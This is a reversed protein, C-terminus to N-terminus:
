NEDIGLAKFQKYEEKLNIYEQSQQLSKIVINKIANIELIFGKLQRAAESSDANKKIFRDIGGAQHNFIKLNTNNTNIFDLLFKEKGENTEIAAVDAKMKAPNLDNQFRHIKKIFDHKDIRETKKAGSLDDIYDIEFLIRKNNNIKFIKLLLRVFPSINIEQLTSVNANLKEVITKMQVSASCTALAANLLINMSPPKIKIKKDQKKETVANATLRYILDKQLEKSETSFEEELIERILEPVFLEDVMTETFKKRIVSLTEEEGKESAYKYIGSNIMVRDRVRFKYAERNFQELKDLNELLLKQTTALQNISTNVISISLQDNGNRIKALFSALTKTVPNNSIENVMKWDIYNIFKKLLKIRSSNIYEVTFSYYNTIYDLQTDYFSLRTSLQAAKENEMIQSTPPISIESIKQDHKYPDEKILAKKLLLNLIANFASHYTKFLDKENPLLETELYTKRCEIAYQLEEHFKLAKKM